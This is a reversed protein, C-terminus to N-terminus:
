LAQLPEWGEGRHRPEFAEPHITECLIELSEALRPGPRNMYQNGDVIVARGNRLARLEEFGPQAVLPGLEARTRALDFGCPLVVLVDPDADRLAEWTTWTSARGTEGFAARGGALAVLEPMWNGATMLPDIWEVCAVTPRSATGAAREGLDSIRVQLREALARGREPAGLASAVRIADRLVDGLTRPDLSLVRPAAGTYQALATEVDALSAACVACQDPTLIWDPSARRLGEVDVEYVSLGQELLTRVDRDIRASAGGVDLKARTLAPLARVSRPFDCEHSRGVLWKEFGLACVIETASPILSAIRQVSRM